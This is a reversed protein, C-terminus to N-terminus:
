VISQIEEITIPGDVPLKEMTNEIAYVRDILELLGSIEGGGDIAKVADWLKQIDSEHKDTTQIISSIGLSDRLGNVFDSDNALGIKDLSINGQTGSVSINIYDGGDYNIVDESLLDTINVYIPARDNTNFEFKLYTGKNYGNPDKILSVNNLFTDNVDNNILESYDWSSIIEDEKGSFDKQNVIYLTNNDKDDYLVLSNKLKNDIVPGVEKDLNNNRVFTESIKDWLAHLGAADLYQKTISIEPTLQEAM